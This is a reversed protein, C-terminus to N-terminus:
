YSNNSDNGGNKRKTSFHGKHPWVMLSLDLLLWSVGIFLPMILVEAGAGKFLSKVGENKLIQSFANWCNKYKVAEGSRMMMRRRVTDMPYTPLKACIINLAYKAMAGAEPKNQLGLLAFSLQVSPILAIRMGLSIIQAPFIEYLTINYGRYLGVIGDSKLTKRFVDIIGNFQRKEVNSCTIIDNALRTQAYELPYVLFKYTATALFNAALWEKYGDKDESNYLSGIFCNNLPERIVMSFIRELIYATNGRWLSRIGECRITRAFCDGIGKFPHSLRGSKIMENQCQTLFVVRKIPATAMTSAFRILIAHIQLSNYKGKESPAGVFVPSTPTVTSSASGQCAPRFLRRSVGNAYALVGCVGTSSAQSKHFTNIFSFPQGQIKVYISPHLSSGNEMTCNVQSVQMSDCYVPTRDVAVSVTCAETQSRGDDVKLRGDDNVQSPSQTLCGISFVVGCSM